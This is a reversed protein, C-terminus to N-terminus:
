SGWRGQGWALKVPAAQARTRQAVVTLLAGM